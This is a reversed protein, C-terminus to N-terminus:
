TRRLETSDVISQPSPAYAAGRDDTAKAALRSDNSEWRPGGGEVAAIATDLAGDDM